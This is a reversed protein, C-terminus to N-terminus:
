QTKAGSTKGARAALAQKVTRWIAEDAIDKDETVGLVSLDIPPPAIPPQDRILPEIGLRPPAEFARDTSPTLRRLASPFSPEDDPAAPAARLRRLSSVLRPVILFLVSLLLSAAALQTM